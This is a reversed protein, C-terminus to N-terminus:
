RDIKRAKKKTEPNGPNKESRKDYTVRNTYRCYRPRKNNKKKRKKVM